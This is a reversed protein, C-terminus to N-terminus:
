FKWFIFEKIIQLSLQAGIPIRSKKSEGGIRRGENGQIEFIKHGLKLGRISMQQTSDLGLDSMKIELMAKRTIARCGTLIDTWHGGFFVNVLFTFMRNGFGDIIGADLNISNPGFRTVVLQDYPGEKIKNSLKLVDEPEHNGDPGFIIINDASTEELGTLIAGGYGKYTEKIVDFGMKKAEEVTGDTSGADVVLIQDVWDKNVQSMIKRFGDIENWTMVLLVTSM